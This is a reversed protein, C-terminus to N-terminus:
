GIIIKKRQKEVNKDLKPIWYDKNSKPINARKVKTADQIKTTADTKEQPM